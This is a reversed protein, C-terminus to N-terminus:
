CGVDSDHHIEVSSEKAVDSTPFSFSLKIEKDKQGREVREIFRKMKRVLSYAIVAMSNGDIRAKAINIGEEKNFKDKKNCLSWSVKIENETPLAIFLGVKNGGKDKSQKTQILVGDKFIRIFRKNGGKRVYETIMKSM